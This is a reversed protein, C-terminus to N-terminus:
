GADPAPMVLEYFQTASEGRKICLLVTRTTASPRHPTGAPITVLQGAGVRLTEGEFIEVVLEGELVVFCEDSDAHAHWHGEGEFVSFKVVSDNVGALARSRTGPTFTAAEHGLHVVTLPPPAPAAVPEAHTDATM